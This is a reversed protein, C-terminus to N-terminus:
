APTVAQPNEKRKKEWQYFCAVALVLIGIIDTITGPDVLMLGGIFFVGRELWTM